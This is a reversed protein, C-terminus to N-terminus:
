VISQNMNFYMKNIISNIEPACIFDNIAIKLDTAVIMDDYSPLEATSLTLFREIQMMKFHSMNENLVFESLAQNGSLLPLNRLKPHSVHKKTAIHLAIPLGVFMSSILYEM